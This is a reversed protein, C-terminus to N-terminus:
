DTLSMKAAALTRSIDLREFCSPFSSSSSSVVIALLLLLGWNSPLGDVDVGDDLVAPGGNGVSRNLVDVLVLNGELTRQSHTFYSSTELDNAPSSPM